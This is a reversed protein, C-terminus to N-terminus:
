LGIYVIFVVVYYPPRNEHSGNGGTNELISSASYSNGIISHFHTGNGETERTMQHGVNDNDTSHSGFQNYVDTYDNSMYTWESYYIDKYFHSHSGSYSTNLSISHSHGIDTHNHSPMEEISLKVQNLGGINGVKAYDLSDSNTNDRGVIFRGRLDPTGNRGDCIYWGSYEGLGTGNSDFWSDILKSAVMIVAGRPYQIALKNSIINPTQENLIDEVNVNQNFVLSTTLHPALTLNSTPSEIVITNNQYKEIFLVWLLILIFLNSVLFLVGLINLKKNLVAYDSM